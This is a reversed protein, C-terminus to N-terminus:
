DTDTFDVVQVRIVEFSVRGVVEHLRLFYWSAVYDFSENALILIELDVQLMSHIQFLESIHFFIM